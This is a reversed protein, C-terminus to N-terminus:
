LLNISHMDLITQVVLNAKTSEINYSRNDYLDNSLVLLAVTLDENLDLLEDSLGTYSKIYGKSAALIQTFLNDDETHTVNAYNKLNSITVESIKM